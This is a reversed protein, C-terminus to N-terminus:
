QKIAVNRKEGGRWVKSIIKMVPVSGVGFFVANSILHPITFFPVGAMFIVIFSVNDYFMLSPVTVILEYIFTTLVGTVALVVSLGFKSSKQDDISKCLFRGLLGGVIGYLAEGLMTAPLTIGGFGSPNLTGYIAWCLAGISGGWFPGLTFGGIFVIFDMLKINNLGVMAYNTGIALGTLVAILALKRTDM